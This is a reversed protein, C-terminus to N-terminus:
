NYWGVILSLERQFARRRLPISAFQRISEKLTRVFREIIAISGHEGVAGMRHRIGRWRCWHKFGPCDFQTGHDSVLHRPLAAIRAM